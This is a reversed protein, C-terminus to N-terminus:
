WRTHHLTRLSTMVITTCFPNWLTREPCCVCLPLVEGREALDLVFQDIAAVNDALGHELALDRPTRFQHDRDALSCGSAAILLQLAPDPHPHCAAFHLISRGDRDQMHRLSCVNIGPM